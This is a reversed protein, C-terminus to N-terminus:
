ILSSDANRYKSAAVLYVWVLFISVFQIIRM